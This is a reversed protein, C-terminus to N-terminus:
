FNNKKFLYPLINKKIHPDSFRWIYGDIYFHFLQFMIPILYIFSFNVEGETQKPMGYVSLGSMLLSYFVIFILRSIEPFIKYSFFSKYNIQKKRIRSSWIIALYQCWHMGVGVATATGLDKFFLIPIYITIGTTFPLLNSIYKNLHGKSSLYLILAYGLFFFYFFKNLILINEGQALIGPNSLGIVLCIFSVLYVLFIYTKTNVGYIKLIGTSQKTVHWGSALYHILLILPPSFFWILISLMLFFFPIFVIRYFNKKIWIWNDKDFFYLWTSAFHTEAFLFLSTIFIYKSYSPFNIILFIYTLPFWLPFNIFLNDLFISSTFQKASTQM